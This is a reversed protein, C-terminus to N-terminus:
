AAPPARSQYASLPASLPARQPADVVPMAVLPPLLHLVAHEPPAAGAVMGLCLVCETAGHQRSNDAEDHWHTGALLTWGLVGVCALLAVARRLRTAGALAPLLAHRLTSM